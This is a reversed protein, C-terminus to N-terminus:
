VLDAFQLEEKNTIQQGQEKIYLMWLLFYQLSILKKSQM